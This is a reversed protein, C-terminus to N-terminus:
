EEVRRGVLREVLDVYEKEMGAWTNQLSHEHGKLALQKRREPDKALECIKAALDAANGSEFFCVQGDPFYHQDIRTRSAVVPLGQSMFELIKTSYAENGFGEALKPVIGLDANVM